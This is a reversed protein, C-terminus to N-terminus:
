CHLEVLQEFQGDQRVLGGSFGEDMLGKEEYVAFGLHKRRNRSPTEVEDIQSYGISSIIHSKREIPFTIQRNRNHYEINRLEKQTNDEIRPHLLKYVSDIM